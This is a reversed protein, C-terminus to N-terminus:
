TNAATFDGKGCIELVRECFRLSHRTEPLLVVLRELILIALCIAVAALPFMVVGGSRIRGMLTKDALNTGATLTGTVDIPLACVAAGGEAREMASVVSRRMPESLEEYWRYGGELYPDSIAVAV